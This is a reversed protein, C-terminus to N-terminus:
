TGKTIMKEAPDINMALQMFDADLFPPRAEVGWASTSKNARLCDFNHLASIKDKLEAQMEEPNPCKHFYLYGAFIEDAGEGSLVMKIGM